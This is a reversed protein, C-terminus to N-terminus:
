KRNLENIADEVILDGFSLYLHSIFNSIINNDSQPINDMGNSLFRYFFEIQEKTSTDFNYIKLDSSKVDREILELLQSISINDFYNQIDLRIFVKNESKKTEKILEKKFNHYHSYYLTTNKNLVLKKTSENFKLDGGYFSKIKSTRLDFILQQSVRLFYLGFAYMLQQM